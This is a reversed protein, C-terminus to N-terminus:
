ASVRRYDPLSAPVPKEAPAYKFAYGKCLLPYEFVKWSLQAVALTTAFALVTVAAGPLTLFEPAAKLLALHCFLNVTQHIVYVCYSIRGLYALPSLRCVWALWGQPHLVALALSSVFFFGLASFGWRSMTPSYQSPNWIALYGVLAVLIPFVAWALKRGSRQLRSRWREDRLMCAFLVGLALADARCATLMYPAAGHQPVYIRIAMRTLPALVVTLGMAEVLRRRPFFRVIMPMVLYFQEEVALSWLAGLWATGFTGHPIKFSNQLFVVYFRADTWREPNDAIAVPFGPFSLLALLFFIGAWVAYLPIIRFFRRAYFTQFFGPSERADLLIGGILFGSLVFFLDVGAWGLAFCSQLPTLVTGPAASGSLTIYHYLLVFLIAMGRLGDLEPIRARVAAGGSTGEPAPQRTSVEPQSPGLTREFTELQLSEPM